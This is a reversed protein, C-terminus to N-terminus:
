AFVINNAKEFFEAYISSGRCVVGVDSTHTCNSAGSAPLHGCELVNSESGTCDLDFILGSGLGFLISGGTVVHDTLLSLAVIKDVHFTGKM